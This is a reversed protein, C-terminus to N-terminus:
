KKGKPPKPKILERRAAIADELAWLEADNAFRIFELARILKEIRLKAVDM